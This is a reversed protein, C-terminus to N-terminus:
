NPFDASFHGTIGSQFFFSLIQDKDTQSIPVTSFVPQSGLSGYYGYFTLSFSREYAQIFQPNARLRARADPTARALIQGIQLYDRTVEQIFLAYGEVQITERDNSPYNAYRSPYESEYFRDAPTGGRSFINWYYSHWLEHLVISADSVGLASLGKLNGTAPDRTSENLLIVDEDILFAASASGMEDQSAFRVGQLAQSGQQAADLGPFKLAGLDSFFSAFVPLLAAIPYSMTRDTGHDLRKRSVPNQM